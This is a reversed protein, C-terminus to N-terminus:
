QWKAEGVENMNTDHQEVIDIVFRSLAEAQEHTMPGILHPPCYDFFAPTGDDPHGSVVTWHATVWWGGDREVPGILFHLDADMPNRNDSM